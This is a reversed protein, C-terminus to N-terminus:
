RSLFESVNGGVEGTSAKGFDFMTGDMQTVRSCHRFILCLGTRTRKGVIDRERDM